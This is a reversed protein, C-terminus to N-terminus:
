SSPPPSHILFHSGRGPAPRPPQPGCGFRMPRALSPTRRAGRCGRLVPPADAPVSDMLGAGLAPPADSSLRHYLAAVGGTPTPLPNGGRLAPPLTTDGSPAFSPAPLVQFARVFGHVGRSGCKGRGEPVSDMDRHIGTTEGGALNGRAELALFGSSEDMGMDEWWMM